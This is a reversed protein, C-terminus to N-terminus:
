SSAFKQMISFPWLIDNDSSFQQLFFFNDVLFKMFAYTDTVTAINLNHVFSQRSMIFQGLWEKHVAISAWKNCFDLFQGPLADNRSKLLM